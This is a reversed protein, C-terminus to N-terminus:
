KCARGRGRARRKAGGALAPIETVGANHAYGGIGPVITAKLATSLGSTPFTFTGGTNTSFPQPTGGPLHIRNLTEPGIPNHTADPSSSNGIIQSRDIASPPLEGNGGSQVPSLKALAKDLSKLAVKMSRSHKASMSEEDILTVWRRRAEALHCM